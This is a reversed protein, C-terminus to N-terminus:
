FPPEDAGGYAQEVPATYGQAAPPRSRQQGGGHPITRFQLSPAIVDAIMVIKSRQGGSDRDTWEETKLKGYVLLLDGKAVSEVVNEALQKFCTVDIWLTDGDEWEGSSENKRRDAAVVRLKAVAVGSNSFRLEPEAAV